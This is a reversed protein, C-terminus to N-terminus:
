FKYGLNISTIKTQYPSDPNNSSNRQSSYKATVLFHSFLTYVVGFDTSFLSQYEKVNLTRNGSTKSFTRTSYRTHSLLLNLFFELSDSFFYSSSISPGVNFNTYYSDTSNNLEFTLEPILLLKESYNNELGFVADIIADQRNSIQTYSKFNGLLSFYGVKDKNYEKSFTAGFKMGTNDSAQDASVAPTSTYIQKYLDLSYESLKSPKYTIGASITQNNNDETEVYTETKIKFRYKMTETKFQLNGALLSYTDKTPDTTTSYVNNTSYRGADIKFSWDFASANLSIVTFFSFAYFKM